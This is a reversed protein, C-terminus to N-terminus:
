IYTYLIPRTDVCLRKAINLRIYRRCNVAIRRFIDKVISFRFTDIVFIYSYRPIYTSSIICHIFWTCKISKSICNYPWCHRKNCMPKRIYFETWRDGCWPEVTPSWFVWWCCCLVRFLWMTCPPFNLFHAWCKLSAAITSESLPLIFPAFFIFIYPLKEFLWRGSKLSIAGPARVSWTEVLGTHAPCSM